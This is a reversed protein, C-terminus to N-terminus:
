GFGGSSDPGAGHAMDHVAKDLPSLAVPHGAPPKASGTAPAPAAGGAAHVAEMVDANASKPLLGLANAIAVLSNIVVEATAATAATAGFLPANQAALLLLDRADALKRAGAGPGHQAEMDKILGWAKWFLPLYTFINFM